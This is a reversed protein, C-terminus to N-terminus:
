KVEVKRSIKGDATNIVVVYIGAALNEEIESAAEAVKMGNLDYVEVSKIAGTEGKVILKGNEVTVVVEGNQISDVGSKVDVNIIYPDGLTGVFDENFNIRQELASEEHTIASIVRFRIEDGTNGFVSIMMYGDVVVGIGRCEDGCFAAVEYDDGDVFIGGAEAIRATVPMVSPYKGSMVVWGAESEKREIRRSPQAESEAVINYIFEKDNNSFFLYGAGHELHGLDGIWEGEASLQMFGDRGVIMDGEEAALNSFLDSVNLSGEDVPCGIWNWGKNLTIAASPDFSVGAVNNNQVAGKTFVKYAELPKLETLTGVLGLQPDRIVEQTQSLVRDVDASLISDVAVANEVNHSIWNWGEELAYDMNTKRLMYDLSVVDSAYDKYKAYAKVTLTDTTLSIPETYKISNENPESGDLTYFIDAKTTLSSLEVKSSRYLKSGSALSAAPDVVWVAHEGVKFSAAAANDNAFLYAEFAAPVTDAEVKNFTAGAEDLLYLNSACRETNYNGYLTFNKGVAKVEEPVPTYEVDYVLSDPTSVGTASFTVPVSEFPAYVNALFPHNAKITDVPTLTEANEDAFSILSIGDNDRPTFEKGFEFETPTFPLVIGRWGGFEDGVAGPVDVTLSIKHDALSFSAPANFAYKGDIAIDARAVRSGAKNIIVNLSDGTVGDFGEPLYILCNPNIGKFSADTVGEGARTAAQTRSMIMISTLSSCGAFASDGISEVSALTVSELNSCGAFSNAGVSSVTAPLVVDKLNEMGKFADTPISENTMESLNLVELSEFKDRLNRFADEDLEGGINLTTIDKANENEVLKVEDQSVDDGDEVVLSTTVKIKTDGQLNEFTYVGNEDPVLRTTETRYTPNEKGVSTMIKSEAVVTLEVNPAPNKLRFKYNYAERYLTPTPVNSPRSYDWTTSEPDFVWFDPIDKWENEPDLDVFEPTISEPTEFAFSYFFVVKIVHNEVPSYPVKYVGRYCGYYPTRESKDVGNDYVKFAVNPRFVPNPIYYSPKLNPMGVQPNNGINEPVKDYDWTASGYKFSRDQDIQINFYRISTTQGLDKWYAATSYLNEAGKPVELTIASPNSPFPTMNGTVPPENGKMVIKKLAICASFAGEGVYQVSAPLTIESLKSCRSFANGEINVLNNPLIVTQLATAVGANKSAFADSPIANALDRVGKITADSLDLDVITAAHNRFADFDETRITGIVKLRAPCQEIKAALEGERVNVVTYANAGQPVVQIAIELDETVSPINLNAVAADVVKNIGNVAITIRNTVAVPTVRLNLPMGRVVQTVAGQINAGEIKEPMNINHYVVRNGVASIYDTITDSDAKVVSWKKKNFSSVIRIMNGERVTADKIQCTFNCPLNGFNYSSNSVVPSILEKIRNDKDTLAACYFLAANDSPIALANARITFSKGVAVNVVDSVLGVGGAAGTIKWPSMDYSEEPQRFNAHILTNSNITAKYVGSNDPYLRTNNAYMEMMADGYSDATEVTFSYQSGPAVTTGESLATFKVGSTEQLIVNYETAAVANEEVFEKFDQWNEKAKYAATAGVPVVLKAKPTGEFVCWNVWAPSSRRVIVENLSRCGLFINYEYNSVSAPIEISQLGSYSFCGSKFTNLNRPLIIQRLSSCKTFAKAPIANAPNAGNAVINVGSIDLRSLKMRERMFTFDNVDITGYLTLDTIIGADEDSILQSLNGAQVWLNRKSIVDAANRVIVSIEQDSNVNTVKYNHNADPSLIFGNAKVSVVQDPSTSVVNFTFDRGKIVRPDDCTIVAGEVDAPMTMNFYPIDYGKALAEGLTLLDNAVPLWNDDGSGKTVVRVVDGDAIQTGEPVTCSFDTYNVIQLSQIGINRGNGLLAKFTGDASFLGTSISGSFDNNTINKLAGVRVSFSVGPQLDTVNITMGIQREDSTIHIPSWRSARETPKINYVITTLNNFSHSTSVTPNLANSAYFGDASGGWGWNIHFYPTDGMMRYGDCVFAHGASVDQGSYLVPRGEDIENVILADWSARDMESGKKYSVGADYGFMEVLAAPVKVEFASSSSMGFDTGIAIAADAVLTAVADAEESSYGNNRYNDNRMNKWDYATTEGDKVLSAPRMAPYDYYKMIEALATGVCGVLRRNPVNNNFPAEQSWTPTALVKEVSNAMPVAISRTTAIKPQEVRMLMQGAMEPVSQQQWVSTTSFGIVPEVTDDASVIIFGEGDIANFVYYKPTSGATEVHVLKLADVDALRSVDGNRFFTAAATKAGDATLVGGRALGPTLMCSGIFLTQLIQKLM